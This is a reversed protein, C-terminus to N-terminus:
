CCADSGSTLTARTSTGVADRTVRVGAAKVCGVGCGGALGVAVGTALTAGAVAGTTASGVADAVPKRVAVLGAGEPLVVPAGAAGVTGSSKKVAAVDKAVRSTM